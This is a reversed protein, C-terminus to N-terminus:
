SGEKITILMTRGLLRNNIQGSKELGYLYKCITARNLNTKKELETVTMGLRAEKIAKLIKEENNM